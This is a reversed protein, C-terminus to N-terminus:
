LAEQLITALREPMDLMVDRGGDGRHEGLLRAGGQGLVL